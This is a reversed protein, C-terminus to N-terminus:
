TLIRVGEHTIQFEIGEITLRVEPSAKKSAIVKELSEIDIYEHLTFTSPDIGNAKLKEIIKVTLSPQEREERDDM